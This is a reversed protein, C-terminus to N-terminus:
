RNVILKRTTITTENWILSYFYVGNELNNLDIVAKGQLDKLPLDISIDGVLNRIIVRASTTEFPLSYEMQTNVSAPNPYANSFRIKKVLDAKSLPANDTQVKQVSDTSVSSVTQQSFILPVLLVIFALSLFIKKM